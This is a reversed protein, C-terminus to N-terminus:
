RLLAPVPRMKSEPWRCHPPRTATGYKVGERSKQEQLHRDYRAVKFQCFVDLGVLLCVDTLLRATLRPPARTPQPCVAPQKFDENSGNLTRKLLVLCFAYDWRSKWRQEQM